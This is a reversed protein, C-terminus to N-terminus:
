INIPLTTFNGFLSKWLRKWLRKSAKLNNVIHMLTLEVAKFEDSYMVMYKEIGHCSGFDVSKTKEVSNRCLLGLM